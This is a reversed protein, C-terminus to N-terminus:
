WNVTIPQEVSVWCHDGASQLFWLRAGCWVCHANSVEKGQLTGKYEAHRKRSWTYKHQINSFKEEPTNGCNMEKSDGPKPQLLFAVDAASVKWKIKITCVFKWCVFGGIIFCRMTAMNYHPHLPSEAIDICTIFLEAAGARICIIRCPRVTVPQQWSVSDGEEPCCLLYKTVLFREWSTSMELM